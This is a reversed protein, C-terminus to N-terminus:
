LAKTFLRNTYLQAHYSHNDSLKKYDIFEVQGRIPRSAEDTMVDEFLKKKSVDAVIFMKTRFDVLEAYKRISNRIDTSHEVEFVYSPFQRENFWIVDISAIKKVIKPYTFEPMTTIDVAESLSKGLFLRNKDQAPVYTKHGQFMGLEVILGQYYTHNFDNIDKPKHKSTDVVMYDPLKNVYAKLAWLGPKIKSFSDKREQVIRRISAFPTKTGWEVGKVGLAHQYLYGLTAYGGNQEMVQIVAEHQKM